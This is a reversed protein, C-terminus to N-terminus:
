NGRDKEGGGTCGAGEEGGEDWINKHHTIAVTPINEKKAIEVAKKLFTIHKSHLKQMDNISM